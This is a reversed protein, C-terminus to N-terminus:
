EHKVTKTVSVDQLAILACIAVLAYSTKPEIFAFVIATIILVLYVIKFFDGM